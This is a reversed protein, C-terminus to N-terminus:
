FHATPAAGWLGGSSTGAPRGPGSRWSNCPARGRLLTVNVALNHGRARRTLRRGTPGAAGRGPRPPPRGAVAARAAGARGEEPGGTQVGLRRLGVPGAGRHGPAARAGERDVRVGSVRQRGVGPRTRAGRRRGAEQAAGHPHVEGRGAVEPVRRVTEEWHIRRPRHAAVVLGGGGGGVPGGSVRQAPSVKESGPPHRCPTARFGPFPFVRKRAVMMGGLSALCIETGSGFFHALRRRSRLVGPRNGGSWDCARTTSSRPPWSVRSTQPRS